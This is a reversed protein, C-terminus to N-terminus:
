GSEIMIGTSVEVNESDIILVKVDIPIAQKM